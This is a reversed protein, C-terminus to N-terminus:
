RRLDYKFYEGNINFIEKSDKINLANIIISSVIVEGNYSKINLFELKCLNNFLIERQFSM